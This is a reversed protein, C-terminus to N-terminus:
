RLTFGTKVKLVLQLSSEEQIKYDRLSREDELVQHNFLLSLKNHPIREQREIRTKVEDITDSPHVKLTITKGVMTKLYITMTGPLLKKNPEFRLNLQDAPIGVAAAIKAKVDEPTDTPEVEIQVIHGNLQINLKIGSANGFYCALVLVGLLAISKM